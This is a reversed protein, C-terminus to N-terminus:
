ILDSLRLGEIILARERGDVWRNVSLFWEAADREKWPQDGRWSSRVNARLLNAMETALAQDGKFGAAIALWGAVELFQSAVGMGSSMALDYEGVLVHIVCQFYSYWDPYLPNLNVAQSALKMGADPEGIFAKVLAVHMLVDASHPNLEHAIQMHRIARTRDCLWLTVWMMALHSRPDHPDCDLALRAHHLARRRDESEQTYGPSVLPRTNFQLALSSHARALRPDHELATLLLREAEAEVEASWTMLLHQARLWLDYATLSSQSARQVRETRFQNIRVDIRSAVTHSVQTSLSRIDPEQRDSTWYWLLTADELHHLRLSLSIFRGDTEFSGELVYDACLERQAEGFADVRRFVSQCSAPAIVDFSHFRSLATAIETMIGVSLYESAAQVSETRLPFVCVRARRDRGIQFIPDQSSVPTAGAENKLYRILQTTEPAPAVGLQDKLLRAFDQYSLIAEGKLGMEALARLEERHADERFPDIELAKRALFLRESVPLRPAAWNLLKMVAETALKAIRAREVTLWEEFEKIQGTWDEMLAGEHLSVVQRLDELRQSACHRLFDRADCAIGPGLAILDRGDSLIPVAFRRLSSLSQRLSQRAQMEPRDPWLLGALRERSQSRDQLSLFALLARDRM